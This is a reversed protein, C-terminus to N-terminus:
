GATIKAGMASLVFPAEDDTKVEVAAEELWGSKCRLEVRFDKSVPAAEIFRTNQLIQEWAGEYDEGRTDVGVVRAWGGASNVFYLKISAIVANEDLFMPEATLRSFYRVSTKLGDPLDMKGLPVCDQWNGGDTEEPDLREVCVFSDREVALFVSKLGKYSLACAASVGTGFNLRSWAAVNNEKDYTFVALQGDKRVCYIRNQPTLQNFIHRVGGKLIEPNMTTLSQSGYSDSAFDYQIAELSLFGRKVYMVMGGAQAPMLYEAGDASQIKAQMISLSLAKGAERSGLSWESSYTGIMLDDISQIWCIPEGENAALTFSLPDTELNAVSRFNGWSNTQSLWITHPNRTTGAFVLREEHIEVCRPWGYTSSWSSKFVKDAKFYARAPALFRVRAKTPSKVELIEVWALSASTTYINFFCGEKHSEVLATDTSICENQEYMRARVISNANFIERELQENGSGQISTTRGIESWTKGGDTSEEVLLIGDWIGGETKVTIQGCAPFGCTVAGVNKGNAWKWKYTHIAEDLYELKLQSGVMNATFFEEAGSITLDGEDGRFVVDGTGTEAKGDNDFLASIGEEETDLSPYIEVADEWSVSPDLLDLTMKQPKLEPHSIFFYGGVQKFQFDQLTNNPITTQQPKDLLPNGEPDFVKLMVFRTSNVVRRKLELSKEPEQGKFYDDFTYEAGETLVNFPLIRIHFEDGSADMWESFNGDPVFKFDGEGSDVTSVSVAGQVTQEYKGYVRVKGPSFVVSAFYEEDAGGFFASTSNTGDSVSLLNSGSREDRFVRISSNGFKFFIQEPTSVDKFRFCLSFTESLGVFSRATYATQNNETDAYFCFLYSANSNYEFPLFRTDFFPSSVGLVDLLWTGSRRSAAGLPSVNFNLMEQCAYAHKEVDNRYKALKSIEGANFARRIIKAKGM